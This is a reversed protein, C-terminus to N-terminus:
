GLVVLVDRPEVLQGEKVRVEVVKGDAPAPIENQMKMAELVVLCAGAKVEDGARVKVAAVRGPLPPHVPGASGHHKAVVGAPALTEIRVPFAEGDVRVEEGVVVEHRVRGVSVAFSPGDGEVRTKFAQGDVVVRGEALAVEHDEGDVRIRLRM